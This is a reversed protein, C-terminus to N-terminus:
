WGIYQSLIARISSEFRTRITVYNGQPYYYVVGPWAGSNGYIRFTNGITKLIGPNGNFGKFKMSKQYLTRGVSSFIRCKPRNSFANVFLSGSLSKTLQQVLFVNEHGSIHGGLEEFRCKM